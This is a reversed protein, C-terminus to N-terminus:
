HTDTFLNFYNNTQFIKINFFIKTAATTTTPRHHTSTTQYKGAAM